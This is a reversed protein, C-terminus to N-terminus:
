NFEKLNKIFDIVEKSTTFENDAVTDNQSFKLVRYYNDNFQMVVIHVSGFYLDIADYGNETSVRSAVESPMIDNKAALIITALNSMNNRIDKTLIVLQDNANESQNIIKVEDYEIAQLSCQKNGGEKNQKVRISYPKANEKDDMLEMNKIEIGQNDKIFEEYKVIADVVTGNSATAFVTPQIERSTGDNIAQKVVRNVMKTTKM